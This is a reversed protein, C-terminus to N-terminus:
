SVLAKAADVWSGPPVLRLLGGWLKPRRVIEKMCVSPYDIDGFEELIGQVEPQALWDFIRNIHDDTLHCLMRHAHWGFQLERELKSRWRLEYENLVKTSVDQQKVAKAAVEGAIQGCLSATYIGGGSTPKAQGAADGVLMVGDAVTKQPLGFPITGGQVSLVETSFRATLLRNLNIKADHAEDSALGVRATNARAPVAWAFFNPAINRGLFVEVFGERQPRHPVLVQTGYVRKRPRPLKAWQAVRSHAGDAGILIKAGFRAREQTAPNIASLAERNWATAKLGTFVSVGVSKAEDILQQDLRDRDIVYAQLKHNGLAVRVGNPAYVHVGYIPRLRIDQRTKTQQIGHLSLLGTCQIPRGVQTHEEILAVRVGATAAATAASAGAPGGGVVVVDFAESAPMGEGVPKLHPM